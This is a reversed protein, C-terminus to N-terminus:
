LALRQRQAEFLIVGTAVAANISETAAAMPISIATGDLTSISEDVGHAENGIVLGWSATWDVDSYIVNGEGAALYVNLPECYGKIENWEAEIIPTRFHAGMGARLVKPNYPDVCKPALLVVEVGSAGASRLITGMNGPNSVADLILVRQPHKPLPPKPLPYVAVMGQPSQTDSIHQMIDSTVPIVEARTGQLKAILDYDANNPNYLVFEADLNQELADGILRTGELAIKREKRRTRARSQLSNALKVKTNQLSTIPDTM